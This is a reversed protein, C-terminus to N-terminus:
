PIFGVAQLDSIIGSWLGNTQSGVQSIAGIMVAILLALMVAYEVTTAGDEEGIFQCQPRRLPRKRRFSLFSDSM